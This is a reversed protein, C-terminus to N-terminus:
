GSFYGKEQRFAPAHLIIVEESSGGNTTAAVSKHRMGQARVVLRKANKGVLLNTYSAKLDALTVANIAAALKERLDFDYHERDIENWYRNSRDDLTSDAELLNSLLAAKHQEFSTEDLDAMTKAYSQIFTEIHHQLATPDAIPSQVVFSIGPRELISMPSAFVIYGLEKETRLAEFFAPGMMNVLLAVRARSSYAKSPGQYYLVVASDDQSNDVDRVYSDGDALKVGRGSPVSVPTAPEVLGQDVIQALSLAEDRSVNGHALAVVQVKALLQPVFHRVDDADVDQIAALLQDESWSPETLLLQVEDIALRYPSDKRANRLDRITDEKAIEFRDDAIVPNRLATVIRQVLVAQKDDYGSVRVTFGRIHKYLSYSLGALDADYSFEALQDNVLQVYLSTLVAHRATDNAVPSRVSFYFNALPLGFETDLQHWLEFGDHQELVTPRKEADASSKLALNEPIFKNPGPLALASDPKPSQWSALTQNDIPRISYDVGYWDTSSAHVAVDM